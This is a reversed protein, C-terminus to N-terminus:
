TRIFLSLTSVVCLLLIFKMIINLYELRQSSSFTKEYIVRDSNYSADPRKPPVGRCQGPCGLGGNCCTPNCSHITVGDRGVYGCMQQGDEENLFCMCEAMADRVCPPYQKCDM